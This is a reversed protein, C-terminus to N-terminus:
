PARETPHIAVATRSRRRKCQAILFNSRVRVLLLTKHLLWLLLVTEVDPLQFLADRRLNFTYVLGDPSVDWDEALDPIIQLSRDLSVLGGFLEVIYAASGADGALAPDLTIPDGGLLRLDAAASSGNGDPALPDGSDGDSGGCALALAAIAALVTSSYFSRLGSKM